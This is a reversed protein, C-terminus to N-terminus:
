QLPRADSADDAGFARAARDVFATLREQLEHEPPLLLYTTLEAGDIALPRIAVEPYRYIAIKEAPAIGVGYGAAVLTLTMEVSVTREAVDPRVDMSRLMKDVKRSYGPYVDPHSVILPYRALDGSSIQPYALLPHRSPVVAVLEENWLPLAKIGSGAPDSQALGADFIGERLGRVQEGPPVELVSIQVSPDEERSLALLAALRPQTVGNSVAIRLLGTRGAAASRAVHKAHEM